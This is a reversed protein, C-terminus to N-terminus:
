LLKNSIEISNSWNMPSVNRNGKNKKKKKQKKERKKRKRDDHGLNWKTLERSLRQTLIYPRENPNDWTQHDSQLLETTVSKAINKKRRKTAHYFQIIGQRNLKGTLRWTIKIHKQSMLGCVAGHILMWM